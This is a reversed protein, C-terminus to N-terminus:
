YIRVVGRRAKMLEVINGVPPVIRKREEFDLKEFYLELALFRMLKGVILKPRLWKDKRCALVFALSKYSERWFKSEVQRQTVIEICDKTCYKM